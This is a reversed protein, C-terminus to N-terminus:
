IGGALFLRRVRSSTNTLIEYPITNIWGAVEELPLGKGFLTVEDGENADIETVDIMTMDMCVRGVIAAQKGNVLVKGVGNSFSRSYGDAYGIAITAIRMDREGRYSRGYGVSEGTKITRIQSITSKLSAVPKLHTDGIGYLGIGLRVMDFHFEPFRLIGSSNVLHFLPREPLYSAIRVAWEKFRSGQERSFSDHAAEDSGALHSFISVVKINPNNGLIHMLEELESEVFGLRAMGTDLKLHIRIPNGKAKMVVANLLKLSYVEPELNYQFMHELSLETPNMVMVPLDIHNKRLDIGEDAYAVGLYQVKHFKMLNAIEISGSGYALAKVMVMLRTSASLKSKFFNLNHVLADLDVELVTGHVKQQLAAVVKEFEFSRAGKILVLEDQLGLTHISKVLEETNAFLSSGKSFYSSHKRLVPGVGVFRNIEYSRILRAIQEVLAIESLGSQLIDSLILTRSSRQKQHILFQLSFELGGLDNNYSDDIIQCNNTGDKLELRNPVSRLRVIRDQIVAFSKRKYLLVAVCHMCNEISADDTFPMHLEFRGGAHAVNLVDKEKSVRIDAGEQFGWSLCSVKLDSVASRVLSHDHCYVLIDVGKFLGLKENLKHVKGAFGEDHASGINTLIGITPHLMRELKEMEGGQSIGAEFIGLDYSNTLNWVSLAVGLQSNYSGPNAITKVDPSLLEYLWEKVITKGNSGTIAIVEGSFARRKEIAILQLAEICNDVKLINAEVLSTLDAPDEEVLFTRIGQNYMEQIFQHGDHRQGRIAVFLVGESLVAKRSDTVLREITTEKSKLVVKGGTLTVLESFSLPSEM